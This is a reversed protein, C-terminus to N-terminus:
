NEREELFVPLAERLSKRADNLVDEVTGEKRLSLKISAVAVGEPGM